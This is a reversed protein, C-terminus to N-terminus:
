GLDEEELRGEVDAYRNQDEERSERYSPREAHIHHQVPPTQPPIRSHPPRQPKTPQPSTETPLSKVQTTFSPNRTLCNIASQQSHETPDDEEEYEYAPRFEYEIKRKRRM